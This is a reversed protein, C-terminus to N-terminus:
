INFYLDFDKKISEKVSENATFYSYHEKTFNYKNEMSTKEYSSIMKNKIFDILGNFSILKEIFRNNSVEDIKGDGSIRAKLLRIQYQTENSLCALIYVDKKSLNDENELFYDMFFYQFISIEQDSFPMWERLILIDKKNNKLINSKKM